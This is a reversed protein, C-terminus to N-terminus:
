KYYFTCQIDGAAVATADTTAQGTVMTYALGSSFYLGKALFNVQGSAPPLAITKVVGSGATPTTTRNHLKVYRWLTAHTNTCDWGHLRARSTKIVTANTTAASVVDHFLLDEVGISQAHGMIPCLLFVILLWLKKM